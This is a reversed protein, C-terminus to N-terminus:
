THISDYLNLYKKCFIDFRFREDACKHCNAQYYSYNSILERIAAVLSRRNPEFVVGCEYRKIIDSIGVLNSVLVPKGALISEVISNPCSKNGNMSTFPAITAHVRGYIENMNEIKRNVIQLRPSMSNSLENNCRGRWLFLFSFDDRTFSLVDLLLPVGRSQFNEPFLPASAFLIQFTSSSSPQYTFTNEPYGPYILKVKSPHLGSSILKQKMTQSQAVVASCKKLQDAMLSINSVESCGTFIVSRNELKKIFFSNSFVHYIHCIDYLSSIPKLLIDIFFLRHWYVLQRRELKLAPFSGRSFVFSDVMRALFSIERSIAEFKPQYMGTLFIVKKPMINDM